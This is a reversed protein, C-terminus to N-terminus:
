GGLGPLQKVQGGQPQWSLRKVWLSWLHSVMVGCVTWEHIV